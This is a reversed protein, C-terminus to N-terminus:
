FCFFSVYTEVFDDTLYDVNNEKIDDISHAM